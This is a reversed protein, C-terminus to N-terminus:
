LENKIKIRHIAKHGFYIAIREIIIEQQYSLKLGIASSATHILLVNLEQSKERITYIKIPSAHASIEAGVIKNWNIIIEALVKNKKGIVKRLLLNLSESLATAM